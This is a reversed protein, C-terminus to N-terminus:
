QTYFEGLGGAGAVLSTDLNTNYGQLFLLSASRSQVSFFKNFCFGLFFVLASLLVLNRYKNGLLAVGSAPNKSCVGLLLLCWVRSVLCPQRYYHQERISHTLFLPTNYHPSYLDYSFILVPDLWVCLLPWSGFNHDVLITWDCLAWKQMLFIKLESINEAEWQRTIQTTRGQFQGPSLGSFAHLHIHPSM